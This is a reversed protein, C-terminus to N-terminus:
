KCFHKLDKMIFDNEHKIIRFNRITVNRLDDLEIGISGPSSSGQLTYGNGDLIVDNVQVVITRAAINDTLYYIGEHFIIFQEEEISGEGDIIIDGQSPLDIGQVIPLIVLLFVLVIFGVVSVKAWTDANFINYMARWWKRLFLEPVPEMKDVIKTNAVNLNFNIDEDNPKLKKAKEYYLIASPINNTKFFANGLNFYIEASEFGADVIQLYDEVANTYLENNYAENAKQYLSDVNVAKVLFAMFFLIGIFILKKM